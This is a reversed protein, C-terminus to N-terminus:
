KKKFPNPPEENPDSDVFKSHPQKPKPKNLFKGTEVPKKSEAEITSDEILKRAELLEERSPEPRVIGRKLIDQWTM